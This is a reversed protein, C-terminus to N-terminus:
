ADPNDLLAVAANIKDNFANSNFFFSSTITGSSVKTAVAFAINSLELKDILKDVSHQSFVTQIIEDLEKRNACRNVNNNFKNNNLIDPMELVNKCFSEFERENQIAILIRDM